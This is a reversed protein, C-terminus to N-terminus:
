SKTRRRWQSTVVVHVSTQGHGAPETLRPIHAPHPSCPGLSTAARVLEVVTTAVSLIDHEDSMSSRPGSARDTRPADETLAARAAGTKLSALPPICSAGAVDGTAATFGVYLRRPLVINEVRFCTQWNATSM